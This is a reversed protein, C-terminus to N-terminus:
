RIHSGAMMLNDINSSEKSKPLTSGAFLQHSPAWIEQKKPLFATLPLNADDEFKEEIVTIDEKPKSATFKIGQLSQILGEVKTKTDELLKPDRNYVDRARFGGGPARRLSVRTEDQV